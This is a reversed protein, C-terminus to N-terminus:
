RRGVWAVRQREAGGQRGCARSVNCGALSAGGGCKIVRCIPERDSSSHVDCLASVVGLLRVEGALSWTRAYEIAMAGVSHLAWVVDSDAVIEVAADLATM